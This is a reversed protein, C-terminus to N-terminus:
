TYYIRSRKCIAKNYFNIEGRELNLDILRESGLHQGTLFLKLDRILLEVVATSGNGQAVGQGGGAGSNGGVQDVFEPLVVLLVSDPGSADSSSLSDGDHKFLALCVFQVTICETFLCGLYM